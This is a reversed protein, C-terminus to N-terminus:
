PNVAEYLEEYTHLMLPGHDKCRHLVSLADIGSAQIEPRAIRYFELCVYDTMGVDCLRSLNNIGARDVNELETIRSQVVQISNCALQATNSEWTRNMGLNMETSVKAMLSMETRQWVISGFALIFFATILAIANYTFRKRARQARLFLADFSVSLLSSAIKLIARQRHRRTNAIRIILPERDTLAELSSPPLVTSIAHSSLISEDSVFILKSLDHSSAFHAVELDVWPSQAADPSCVLILFHSADLNARIEDTLDISSDLEDIDRFVPALSTKWSETEPRRGLYRKPIQYNELSRHILKALRVDAQSYSIFATYKM